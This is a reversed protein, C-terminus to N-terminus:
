KISLSPRTIRDPFPKGAKKSEPNKQYIKVSTSKDYNELNKCQELNTM